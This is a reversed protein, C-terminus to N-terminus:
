VIERSGNRAHFSEIWGAVSQRFPAPETIQAGVKRFLGRSELGGVVTMMDYPRFDTNMSYNSLIEFVRLPYPLRHRYARVVSEDKFISAYQAGWQKPRSV